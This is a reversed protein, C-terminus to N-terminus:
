WFNCNVAGTGLGGYFVDLSCFFSDARLSSMWCSIESSKFFIEIKQTDKKGEQIRIWQVSPIRSV